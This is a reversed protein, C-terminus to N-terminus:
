ETRSDPGGFSELPEQAVAKWTGTETQAGCSSCALTEIGYATGRSQLIAKRGQQYCHICIDHAPETGREENKLTYVFGNSPLQTLSYRQKEAEWAKARAMEEELTRVQESLETQATRASLTDLQASLIIEQLEVIRGRVDAGLELKLLGNLIEYASMLSSYATSIPTAAM